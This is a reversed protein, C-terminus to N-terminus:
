PIIRVESARGFAEYTVCALHDSGDLRLRLVGAPTYDLVSRVGPREVRAIFGRPGSYECPGPALAGFSYELEIRRLAGVVAPAPMSEHFSASVVERM